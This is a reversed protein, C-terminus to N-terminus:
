EKKEQKEEFKTYVEASVVCKEQVYKRKKWITDGTKGIKM